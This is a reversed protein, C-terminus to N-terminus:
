CVSDLAKFLLLFLVLNFGSYFLCKVNKKSSIHSNEESLSFQLSIETHALFQLKNMVTRNGEDGFLETVCRLQRVLFVGNPLM